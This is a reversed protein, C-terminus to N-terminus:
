APVAVVVKAVRIVSDGLLYGKEVVDAVTESEAGATPAQFIAEHRNPDFADGVEGYATLGLREVASRLKGAITAFSSGETLDGHNEARLLDDLVPLLGKVVDGVAREREIARNAETRKRYNAYEATVRRLDELYEAAEPNTAEEEVLSEEAAEPTQEAELIDDVTLAEDGDAGASDGAKAPDEPTGEPEEPFDQGTAM